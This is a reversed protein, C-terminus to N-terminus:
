NNWVLEGNVVAWYDNGLANLVDAAVGDWSDYRYVGTLTTTTLTPHQLTTDNAAVYCNTKNTSDASLYKHTSSIFYVNAADVKGACNGWHVLLGSYNTATLTENVVDGCDIVVNKLNLKTTAYDMYGFTSFTVTIKNTEDCLKVNVNEVTATGAIHNSIIGVSPGTYSYIGSTLVKTIQIDVNKITGGFNGFLGGLIQPASITYGQGDLVGSFKLSSHNAITWASVPVDKDLIYYGTVTGSAPLVSELETADSIAQTVCDISALYTTGNKFKIRIDKSVLENTTNNLTDTTWTAGDYISIGDAKNYIEAVDALTGMAEPVTLQAENTSWVLNDGAWEVVFFDDAIAHWLPAGNTTDWYKSNFSNFANDQEKEILIAWTDYRKVGTQTKATFGEEKDIDYATKLEEDNEAFSAVSKYSTYKLGSSIVYVDTVYTPTGEHFMLGYVNDTMTESIVDGCDIVVNSISSYNFGSYCSGFVSFTTKLLGTTGNLKVYLNDVVGGNGGKALLANRNDYTANGYDKTLDYTLALNKVTGTLTGFLGAGTGSPDSLAITHGKGDFTGAFTLGNHNNPTNVVCDAELIYYGEITTANSSSCAILLNNLETGDSIAQTVYAVPTAYVNNNEDFLSIFTDGYEINAFDSNTLTVKGDEAVILETKEAGIYAEYTGANPANLTLATSDNITEVIGTSENLTADNVYSDLLNQDKGNLKAMNAVAKMSRVDGAESAYLQTYNEEDVYDYIKATAQMELEVAKAIQEATLGDFTMSAYYTFVGDDEFEPATSCWIIEPTAGDKNTVSIETALKINADPNAEIVANYYEETIDVSFRIGPKVDSLRVAAGPCVEFNGEINSVTVEAKAQKIDSLSIIGAASVSAASALLAMLIITKKATKM